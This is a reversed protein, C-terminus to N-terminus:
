ALEVHFVEEGDTAGGGHEFIEDGGAEDVAGDGGHGPVGEGLVDGGPGGEVWGLFDEAGQGVGDFGGAVQLDEAPVEGGAAGDGFDGSFFAECEGARGADEVLFGGEVGGEGGAGDGAGFSVEHEDHAVFAGLAPRPHGLLELGARCDHTGPQRVHREHRVPPVAPGAVPKNDPM